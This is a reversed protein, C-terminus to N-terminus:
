AQISGVRELLALKGVSPLWGHSKQITAIEQLLRRPQRPQDGGAIESFIRGGLLLRLRLRDRRARLSRILTATMPTRPRPAIMDASQGPMVIAPDRVNAVDVGGDGPPRRRKDLPALHPYRRRHHLIQAADHVVLSIWATVMAVGFWQCERAAM